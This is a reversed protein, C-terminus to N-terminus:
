HWESAYAADTEGLGADERLVAIAEAVFASTGCGLVLVREGPAGLVSGAAPGGALAKAWVDPQSHIERETVASPSVHKDQRRRPRSGPDLPPPHRAARVRHGLDQEDDARYDRLTACESVR